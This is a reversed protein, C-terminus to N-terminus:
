GTQNPQAVNAPPSKSPSQGGTKPTQGRALLTGAILLLAILGFLIAHLWWPPGQRLMEASETLDEMQYVRQIM